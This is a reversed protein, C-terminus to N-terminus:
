APSAPPRAAGSRARGRRPAPTATERMAYPWITRLMDVRADLTHGLGSLLGVVRGVLVLHSPIRVIPNERVLRPIREGARRTAQPDIYSQHRLVNAVELLAGAIDELAREGGRRTEFGLQGLASALARRDGGLLSAAFGLVCKRFDAPLQKALGFDLFVLRHGGEARPQVLLNGPHPDAHFMGRVLIMECYAEILTRMLADTDVGAGRLAEADSIKIGDVYEMVLVRRRTWHWHIRPVAVDPRDAFFAAIQEATRGENEFDLEMPMARGLEEVLPMLDFDREIWGVARFLARLNSLDSHVLREIEPYQVKVAVPQGDRLRARHVQALSASAVPRPDFEDFIRDLPADLEDEVRERIEQFGRPPVRDQLASLVEVYEPPLVDARSGLFQCGKLILGQLDIATDHISEASQRHFRRWRRRMDPPSLRREIWQNTKIGLYIRGFTTGIRRARFLREGAGVETRRM